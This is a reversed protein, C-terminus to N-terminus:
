NRRERLQKLLRKNFDREAKVLKLIKKSSVVTKLDTLLKRRARIKQEEWDLFNNILKEAEKEQLGDPGNVERVLRMSEREKRKLQNITEEYDNYVPWFKQAETSSLDLRETIFAVKLAKVREKPAKQSQINSCIFLVIFLIALNKIKSIKNLTYIM